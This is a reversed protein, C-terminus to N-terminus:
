VSCLVDATGSAGPVSVEMGPKTAGQPAAVGVSVPAPAACQRRGTPAIRGIAALHTRLVERLLPKALTAGASGAQSRAAADWLEGKRFKGSAAPLSELAAAAAAPDRM